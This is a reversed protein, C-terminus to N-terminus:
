CQYVKKVLVNFWHYRWIFILCVESDLFYGEELVLVYLQQEMNCVVGQVARHLCLLHGLTLLAACCWVVM